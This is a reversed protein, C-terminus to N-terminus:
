IRLDSLARCNRTRAPQNDKFDISYVFRYVICAEFCDYAFNIKLNDSFVQMKM